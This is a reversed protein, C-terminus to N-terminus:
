TNNPDKSCNNSKPDLNKKGFLLSCLFKILEWIFILLIGIIWCPILFITCLLGYLLSYVTYIVTSLLPYNLLREGFLKYAVTCAFDLGKGFPFSVINGILNSM